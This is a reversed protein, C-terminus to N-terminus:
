GLGRGGDQMSRVLSFHLGLLELPVKLASAMLVSGKWENNVQLDRQQQWSDVNKWPPSLPWM